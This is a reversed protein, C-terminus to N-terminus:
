ESWGFVRIKGGGFNGADFYFRLANVAAASDRYGTGIFLDVASTNYVIRSLEWHFRPKLGTNLPDFFTLTGVIGKTSGIGPLPLLDVATGSSLVPGYTGLAGRGWQYNSAGSDFSSGGNASTRMFLNYNAGTSYVNEFEVMYKRYSGSLSVDVTAPSGSITSSSILVWGAAGSAWKVGSAEASDVTLVHGNTGGVAVRINDTGNHVILDGKTTTPALSDFANTQTSQGTGGSSLPLVSTVGTTLSLGTANTLTLSSPTGGAGNFLVPAGVSETNLALATAIGTGLGTISGIAPTVTQESAATVLGKANVTVASSKTASGFSGVNANVTALTLATDGTADGTHTANSVLGSYLANIANDGTNTGSHSGGALTTSSTIALTQGATQTVDAFQDLSSAVLADGGGPISQWTGDGRLFKTTIATGSGLYAPAIISGQWAGTAITGLTTISSAGPWTGAVVAALTSSYGQVDAGIALGLATRADSTTTSGTGGSAVALTSSLGAATGTIDSTTLAITGSANPATLTRNATLTGPRFTVSYAGGGRTLQLGGSTADSFLRAMLADSHQSGYVNIADAARLGGLGDFVALKYADATVGGISSAVYSFVGTGDNALVGSANPLAAFAALKANYAQVDSGIALGLNSRATSVSALDSLNNAAVLQLANSVNGLGVATANLTQWSKDGRYYQGTTGAVLIPEYTAGVVAATIGDTIGYGLLTTPTSTITSWAQTGTHNARALPDTALKSLALTGAGIAPEYSTTDVTLAGSGGTTKVFGNSTLNSLSTIAQSVNVSVTGATNTLGTGFVLASQKANWAAASAINGDSLTGTISSFGALALTGATSQYGAIDAGAPIVVTGTFTPSAVPAFTATATTTLLYDTITASQTALTGLGLTSRQAAANADDMLALGAATATSLTTLAAALPQKTSLAAQLDTQNALTGTIDGWTVTGGTGGTGRLVNGSLLLGAGITISVPQKSSNTGWLSSATAQWNRLIPPRGSTDKYPITFDGQVQALLNTSVLLLLARLLSKM